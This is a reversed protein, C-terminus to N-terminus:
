GATRVVKHDKRVTPLEFSQFYSKGTDFVYAKSKEDLEITVSGSEPLKSFPFEDMSRCCVLTAEYSKMVDSYSVACAARLSFCAVPLLTRSM